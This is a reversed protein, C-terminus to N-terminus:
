WGANMLYGHALGAISFRASQPPRALAVTRANWTRRASGGGTRVRGLQREAIRAQVPRPLAAEDFSLSFFVAAYHAGCGHVAAAAGAVAPDLAQKKAARSMNQGDEPVAAALATEM